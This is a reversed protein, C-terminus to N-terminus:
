ADIEKDASATDRAYIRVTDNWVSHGTGVFAFGYKEYLGVHDTSIYLTPHGEAAAMKLVHRILVGLCRRGRYAEFTFAFGLWPTLVPDDVEDREAYTCFGALDDGDVLLLVTAAAGFQKAFAGERALFDALFGAVPWSASRMRALWRAQDPSKFYDVITM